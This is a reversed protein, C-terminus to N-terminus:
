PAFADQDEPPVDPASRLFAIAAAAGGRAREAFFTAAGRAGIKEALAMAIFQNLSVGDRRAYGEAATKLSAPLNLSVRAKKTTTM